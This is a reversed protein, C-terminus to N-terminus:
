PPRTDLFNIEKTPEVKSKEISIIFGLAILLKITIAIQRRLVNKDKNALLLALARHGKM